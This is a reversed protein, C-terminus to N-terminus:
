KKKSVDPMQGMFFGTVLTTLATILICALFSLAPIGTSVEHHLGGLLLMLIFGSPLARLAYYAIVVGLVYVITILIASVVIFFNLIDEWVDWFFKKIKSEAM